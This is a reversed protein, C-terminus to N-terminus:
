VFKEMVTLVSDICSSPIDDVCLMEQLDDLDFILDSINQMFLIM